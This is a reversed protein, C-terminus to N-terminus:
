FSARPMDKFLALLYQALADEFRAMEIPNGNSPRVLKPALSSRQGIQDQTRRLLSWMARNVHSWGLTDSAIEEGLRKVVSDNERQELATFLVKKSKALKTSPLPELEAAASEEVAEPEPTPDMARARQPLVQLPRSIDGALKARIPNAVEGNPDLKPM